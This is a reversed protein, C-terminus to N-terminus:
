KVAIHSAVVGGLFDIYYVKNFGISLLKNKLEEQKYWNLLSNPLYTYAEKDKAFLQGLMPVFKFFFLYYIQKWIINTPHGLDICAFIGNPKLLNYAKELCLEKNILNRLGFGITVLDYSNNNLSLNDIDELLLEFNNYNHLRFKEKAIKLMEKCSDICQIKVSPVLKKLILALDGTGSCLDIANNINKNEKLALKITITKWKKHLGITMLNNLLDYKHAIKKFISQVYKAKEQNHPKTEVANM